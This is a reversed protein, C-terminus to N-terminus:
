RRLDSLRTCTDYDIIFAGNKETIAEVPCVEACKGCQVCLKAEFKPEPFLPRIRIAGKKPNNAKHNVVACVLECSRCGSCLSGDHSLHAM